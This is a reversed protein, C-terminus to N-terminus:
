ELGRACDQAWRIMPGILPALDDPSGAIEIAASGALEGPGGPYLKLGRAGAALDAHGPGGPQDGVQAPEPEGPLDAAAGVSSRLADYGAQDGFVAVPVGAQLQDRVHGKVAEGATAYYGGDVFLAAKGATPPLPTQGDLLAVMSLDSPSLTERLTLSQGRATIPPQGEGSACAGGLAVLIAMILMVGAALGGRARATTNRPM